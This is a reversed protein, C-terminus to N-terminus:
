QQMKELFVQQETANHMAKAYGSSRSRPGLLIYLIMLNKKNTKWYCFFVSIACQYIIKGWISNKDQKLKSIKKLCHLVFWLFLIFTLMVFLYSPIVKHFLPYNMSLCLEKPFVLFPNTCFPQNPVRRVDFWFCAGLM